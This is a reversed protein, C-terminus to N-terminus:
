SLIPCGTRYIRLRRFQWFTYAVASKGTGPVSLSPYPSHLHAFIGPTTATTLGRPPHGPQM